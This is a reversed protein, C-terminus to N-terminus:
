ILKLYIKLCKITTQHVFFYNWHYTWILVLLLKDDIIQQSFTTSRLSKKKKQQCKANNKFM